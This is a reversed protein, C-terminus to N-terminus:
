AAKKRAAVEMRPSTTIVRPGTRAEAILGKQHIPALHEDIYKLPISCGKLFLALRLRKLLRAM